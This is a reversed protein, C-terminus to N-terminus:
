PVGFIVPYDYTNNSTNEEIVEGQADEVPAVEVQLTTQEVIDVEGIDGFVVPVTQGPSIREIVAQKRIPAPAKQITLTVPVQVEEAEGSNEVVVRFRLEPSAEIQNLDGRSLQIGQPLATVSEIGNGRLAGAPPPTTADNVRRWILAMRGRTALQPDELFNSDPVAVGSVDQRELESAAPVKFLDDWVVDSASLRRTQETLVEAAAGARQFDATRAFADALGRLGSDRLLLADIMQQQYSRLPGPPDLDRAGAVVQEQRGALGTLEAQLGQQELGSQNLLDDLDRGIQQSQTAVEQVEGMYDEYRSEKSEGRLNDILLVLGVVVAVALVIVGVLRLLPTMGEPPRPPRAPRRRPFRDRREPERAEEEEFFDFEIDTDRETMTERESM